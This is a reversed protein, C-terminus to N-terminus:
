IEKIESVLYWLFYYTPSSVFIYFVVFQSLIYKLAFLILFFSFAYLGSHYKNFKVKKKYVEASVSFADEANFGSAELRNGPDSENNWEQQGSAELRNGHDSENNWQQQGSAELRNGLDSPFDATWQLQSGNDSANFMPTPALYRSQLLSENEGVNGQM